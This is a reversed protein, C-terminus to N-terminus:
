SDGEVTTWPGLPQRLDVNFGERHEYALRRSLDAWQEDTLDMDAVDMDETVGVRDWLQVQTISPGPRDDFRSLRSNQSM